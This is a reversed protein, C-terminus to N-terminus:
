TAWWAATEPDLVGGGGGTPDSTVTPKGYQSLDIPVTSLNVACVLGPDRAFLLVDEDSPLWRLPAMPDVRRRVSLASRYLELTSQPDGDQAEVTSGSWSRPQPLWPPAAGVASFGYPPSTGSWPLPVRGADRGRVTHNSRTWMPDRLASDPLDVDGLGLEEGQHLHVAGPLALMLLAAARARRVGLLGGGYRTVTRHTDHSGLTWTAPASLQAALGITRDIVRRFAVPAAADMFYFNFVQHLEDPAVYNALRAPSSAWVEGIAVRDGPYEDLIRRWSRLIEHVGDQDFYPLSGRGLLQIQNAFGADPLGDQKVMGHAVDVRFGNVGRDLWFRLTREFDAHVQPSTWAFDPQARDFLHLYWEGDPVRTWAPGGFVSEWDNPPLEGTAGRGPRFIYRQREASGPGARLAAQFWPHASSSHNAVLDLILRMGAENLKRVLQDIDNLTGFAPDVARHDAIDYGGDVLPSSYFPTLWLADVGLRRLYELRSLVGPLDGLGDGNGDAFSPVYVEYVVASRWWASSM